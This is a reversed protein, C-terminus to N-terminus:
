RGPGRELAHPTFTLGVTRIGILAAREMVRCGPCLSGIAPPVQDCFVELLRVCGVLIAWSGYSNDVGGSMAVVGRTAVREAHQPEGGAAEVGARGAGRHDRDPLGAPVDKGARLRPRAHGGRGRDSARAHRDLDPGRDCPLDLLRTRRRVRGRHEVGHKHAVELVSLGLPADVENRSRNRQVFTMKPM